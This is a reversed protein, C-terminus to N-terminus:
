HEYKSKNAGKPMQTLTNKAIKSLRTGADKLKNQQGTYTQETNTEDQVKYTPTPTRNGWDTETSTYQGPKSHTTSSKLDPPM